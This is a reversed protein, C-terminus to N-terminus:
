SVAGNTPGSVISVSTPDIVGDSDTDNGLVAIDVSLDQNTAALDDGPTPPSNVVVTVSDSGTVPQNLSDEAVVDAVNVIDTTGAVVSCTYAWTEGIGLVGVPALDGGSLVLPGCTDDTVVVNVLPDDGLNEVEITYTIMAMPIVQAADAFKRLELDPSIVDVSVSDTPSTVVQSLADLATAYATNTVDGTLAVSCTFRWIEGSDFTGDANGSVESDFVTTPCRDDVVIVSTLPEDGTNEVLYSYSATAGYYVIPTSTAKVITMGAVLVNVTESGSASVDALNALDAGGATVPNATVTAVNTTDDTVTFAATCSVSAGPAVPWAGIDCTVTVDDGSVGATGADDVVVVDSLYVDGSNTVAYTYTVTDGPNVVPQGATKIISIAPSVVSLSDSGTSVTVTEDSSARATNTVTRSAGAVANYAVTVTATAGPGLTPVSCSVNNSAPSCSGGTDVGVGTVALTAPVADTIVVNDADSIGTNTVAITFSYPGTGQKVPDEIFTKVVGLLVDEAISVSAFASGVNGGTDVVNAVNNITGADVTDAVSYTVTVTVSDGAVLSPFTCDISQGVSSNVGGPCSVSTVQLSPDVADTIRVNSTDSLGANTATIAFSNGTSGASVTAPSFTKSTSLLISGFVSVSSLSSATNLGTTDVVDVQNGISTGVVSSAVSYTVTVVRTATIPVTAFTCTISQGASTNAGTGCDVNTVTLRPDVTDTVVVVDATSIGDNTVTLTFQNGISGAAVAAPTFQKVVNLDIVQVVEVSSQGSGANGDADTALATNPVTDADVGAPVSYTVTITASGGPALSAFTCEVAQGVTTNAGGGCNVGSVTLRADFTDVVRVAEADSLGLNEVKITFTHGGTGAIVSPPSPLKTVALIVNESLVLSALGTATNGDSDIASATNGITASEDSASTDYTVTITESAGPALSGYTCTLDQGASTNIGAGCDVSVVALRSDVTDTVVVSGAASTGNNDLVLTFENGTSGAAVAAPSFSKLLELSVDKVVDVTDTNSPTSAQEDSGVNATNSVTALPQGADVQFDVTITISSSPGITAFSCAVANGVTGDVGGQAACDTGLVTLAPDVADTISVNDASSAGSNTLTVTFSSGSGGAVVTPDAFAKVGSLIVDEVIDLTASNSPTATQEDSAVQAVNTISGTNASAPVSFTVTLTVSGSAAVTPFTCSVANGATADSGGQAACDTGTVTLIPDVTDTVAVSDATSAGANSVDITFTNGASGATVPDTNFTKVASLLVDEVVSVSATPTTVPAQEDSGVTAVNSVSQTDTAAPVSYTVVLNVAFGSALTPVTCSVANGVTSDTGGLALCNTGTVVLAPDVTDAIVVNDATSVGSNSAQITFTNGASGATVPSAGFTKTVALVVDEVIGVSAPASTTLAQEDSTVSAVNPVAQTDVAAGVTYTVTLTKSATPSGTPGFTLGTCAVSNGVTAETGGIAVCNTGTVTLAPHVTDAIVANDASTTGTNTVVIAFTHSAPDGASVNADAFSKGIGLIVNETVDVTAGATTPGAEDSSVSATNSVTSVPTSAPVSYTVQITVSAGAAVTSYTCRVANGVTGNTGGAGCNVGIVTLRADVADTVVVNDATSLGNNTAGITFTYGSTGAPVTADTFSKSAAWAVDEAITNTDTVTNPNPGPDTAASSVTVSNTASGSDVGSAVTYNATVTATQGPSLDGIACIFSPGTGCTGRTTSVTGQTFAAPWTDNLVVSTALSPGYNTVVMTYTRTLGEGPVVTTVGDTKTVGLDANLPGVNISATAPTSDATNDRTSDIIIPTPGVRGTVNNVYVGNVNPVNVGFTLTSTGNAPVSYVGNFRLTQGTIVPAPIAVGNYLPTVTPDYTVLSPSSPLVDVIADLATVASGDNRVTVTYVAKGGTPLLSPSASKQMWLRNVVPQVPPIAAYEATGTSTHKVPNGSSINNVPAVVTPATTMTQASFTYVITYSYKQNSLTNLFLTDHYTTGTGPAAGENRIEIQVDTMQFANAPWSLRAAPTAAFIGAGGVQGTDGNVTITMVGGLQPPTPGNTVATVKNAAASIANQVGTLSQASECIQTGATPPAGFMKIQHTQAANSNATTTVYFYAYVTAGPAVRGFHQIGDENAALGVVGSFTDATVWLDPIAAGTTNTIAYGLYMGNVSDGFDTYFIPSHLRSVTFQGATCAAAQARPIVVISASLVVSLSVLTSVVTRAIRRPRRPVSGVPQRVKASM